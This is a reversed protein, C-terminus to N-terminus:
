FGLSVVYYSVSTETESGRLRILPPRRPLDTMLEEAAESSPMQGKIVPSQGCLGRPKALVNPRGPYGGRFHRLSLLALRPCLRRGGAPCRPYILVEQRM